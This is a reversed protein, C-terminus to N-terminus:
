RDARRAPLRALHPRPFSPGDRRVTGRPEDQRPHGAGSGVPRVFPLTVRDGDTAFQADQADRTDGRTKGTKGTKRARAAQQQSHRAAEFKLREWLATLENNGPCLFRAKALVQRADDIRGMELLGGVAIRVVAVDGAASASAALIERTGRKVRACRAAARGFSARYLANAGDLEVARRFCIAARRDCGDPDEEWARGLLFQASADAPNLALAAKMHRRATAHRELELALEGAFRHGEAALDAPLDPHALVRTLQTLADARQGWNTVAAGARISEWGARILSLTRSMARGEQLM